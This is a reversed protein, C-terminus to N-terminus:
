TPTSTAWAAPTATARGIQDEADDVGLVTVTAWDALRPVVLQALRAATQGTDLTAILSESVEALFRLRDHEVEAASPEEAGEGPAASDRAYVHLLGDRYVATAALWRRTPPYFGQWTVPGGTSRAHRLFGHFITGALEPLAAWVSRGLLEGARRGFVQAGAPNLYRITWDADLVAVGDPLVELAAALATPGLPAADPRTM